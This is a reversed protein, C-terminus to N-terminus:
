KKSGDPNYHTISGDADKKYHIRGDPNYRTISRDSHIKYDISGDKKYSM